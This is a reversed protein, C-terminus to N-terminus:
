FNNWVRQVDKKKVNLTNSGDASIVDGLYEDSQVEQMDTGHVKLKPCISSKKGVHM